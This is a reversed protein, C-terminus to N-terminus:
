HDFLPDNSAMQVSLNHIPAQVLYWHHFAANRAKHAPKDCIIMLGHNMLKKNADIAAQPVNSCFAHDRIDNTRIGQNNAVAEFTLAKKTTNGLVSKLNLIEKKPLVVPTLGNKKHSMAIGKSLSAM